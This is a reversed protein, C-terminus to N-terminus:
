FHHFLLGLAIGAFIFLTVISDPHHHDEQDIEYLITTSIQLLLGTVIAFLYLQWHHPFRQSLLAGLPTSLAFISLAVAFATLTMTSGRLLAGLVLAAPIKHMIIAWLLSHTSASLMHAHETEGVHLPFGEIFAHLLLGMYLVKWRGTPLHLHVHSHELGSSFRSLFFQSVFGLLVFLGIDRQGHYPLAPLLEFFVISMIFAAGFALFYRVKERFAEPLWWGAIGGVLASVILLIYYGITM